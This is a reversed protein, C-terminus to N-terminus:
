AFELGDPRYLLQWAERYYSYVCARPSGAPQFLLSLQGLIHPLPLIFWLDEPIVYAAVFDIEGLKYPCNRGKNNRHIGVHYLGKLLHTSAKVQVRVLRPRAFPSSPILHSPDLIIDYRESDGFPKSVGFGHRAAALAFALESIEGRRKTTLEREFPTLPRRTSLARASRPNRDRSAGQRKSM